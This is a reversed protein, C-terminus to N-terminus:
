SKKQKDPGVSVKQLQLEDEDYQFYIYLGKYALRFHHPMYSDTQAYTNLKSKLKEWSLDSSIKQNEIMLVGMYVSTSAVKSDAPTQFYFQVENIIGTPVSDEIKEFFVMGLDDYSHTLNVAKRERGSSHFGTKVLAIKWDKNVQIKNISFIGAKITSTVKLPVQSFAIGAVCLLMLLSLIRKM